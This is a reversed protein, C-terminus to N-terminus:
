LLDFSSGVAAYLKCVHIFGNLVNCVVSTRFREVCVLYWKPKITLISAVQSLCFGLQDIFVNDNIEVRKPGRRVCITHTAKATVLLCAGQRRYATYLFGAAKLRFTEPM